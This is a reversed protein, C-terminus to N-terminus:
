LRGGDAEFYSRDITCPRQAPRASRVTASVPTDGPVLPSLRLPSVMM